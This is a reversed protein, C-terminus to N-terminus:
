LGFQYTDNHGLDEETKEQATYPDKVYGNGKDVRNTDNDQYEVETHSGGYALGEKTSYQNMVADDIYDGGESPTNVDTVQYRVETDLEIAGFYPTWM